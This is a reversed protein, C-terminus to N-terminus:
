GSEFRRLAADYEPFGVLQQLEGFSLRNSVPRGEALAVLADQM